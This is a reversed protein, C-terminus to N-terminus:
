KSPPYPADWPQQCAEDLDESSYGSYWIKDMYDVFELWTCGYDYTDCGEFVLETGSYRTNVRFCSEDSAGNNLCDSDYFM